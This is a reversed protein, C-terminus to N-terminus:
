MRWMDRKGSPEYNLLSELQSVLNALENCSQQVRNVENVFVYFMSYYYYYFLLINIM